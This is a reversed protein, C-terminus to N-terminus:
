LVLIIKFYPQGSVYKLISASCLWIKIEDRKNCLPENTISYYAAFLPQFNMKWLLYCSERVASADAAAVKQGATPHSWIGKAEKGSLSSYSKRILV